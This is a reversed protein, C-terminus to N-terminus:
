DFIGLSSGLLNVGANFLTVYIATYWLPFRVNNRGQQYGVVFGFLAAILINVLFRTM